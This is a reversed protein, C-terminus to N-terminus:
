EQKWGKDKIKREVADLGSVKRMIGDTAGVPLHSALRVETAHRGRWVWHPPSAQSLDRVVAEAWVSAETGDAATHEDSMSKEVEDRAVDYLSGPPLTAPPSNDFFSTSRVAGTVLNVVRVGFPALELRLGETLSALAAKSANYVGHFPVSGATQSGTSTHNILLGGGGGAAAAGSRLLLPVYARTVRLAAFVNLDFLARAADLDADLIPLPFGAGANNVLADLPGGGTLQEVAAVSALISEESSVDLGITEIGVATVQQLKAPNRASAFVRWGGARHFALALAAGLSHDSCGTILITRQSTM